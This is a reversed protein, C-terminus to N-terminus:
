GMALLVKMVKKGHDMMGDMPEEKYDLAMYQQQQQKTVEKKGRSTM